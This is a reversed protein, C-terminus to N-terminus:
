HHGTSADFVDPGFAALGPQGAMGLHGKGDSGGKTIGLLNEYTKLASYHNYSGTTDISGPKIYKSSALM